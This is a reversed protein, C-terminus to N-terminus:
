QVKIVERCAFVPMIKCTSHTSTLSTLYDSLHNLGLGCLQYTASNMNLGPAREELGAHSSQSDSFLKTFM